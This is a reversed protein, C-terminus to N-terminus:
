FKKTFRSSCKYKKKSAKLIRVHHEKKIEKKIKKSLSLLRCLDEKIKSVIINCIEKKYFLNQINNMTEIIKEKDVKFFERNKTVRYNKLYEFLMLEAFSKNKLKNTKFIVKIPDIYSTTYGTLRKKINSTMGLKYVNEGYMEYMKNHLCYIIGKDDKDLLKLYINKAIDDYNLEEKSENLIKKIENKNSHFNSYLISLNDYIM